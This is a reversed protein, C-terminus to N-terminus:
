KGFIKGTYFFHCIHPICSPIPWYPAISTWIRHYQTLIPWYKNTSPPLPDTYEYMSYMSCYHNISPPVLDTSPLPPCATTKWKRMHPQPKHLNIHAYGYSVVYFFRCLTHPYASILLYAFIGCISMHFTLEPTGGSWSIFKFVNITCITLTWRNSTIIQYAVILRM